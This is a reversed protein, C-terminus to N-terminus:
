GKKRGTFTRARTNRPLNQAPRFRRKDCFDAGSHRVPLPMPLVPDHVGLRGEASRQFYQAKEATVRMADGNGIVTQQREIAFANSEAPLVISVAALLTLHCQQSRLEQAAEEEM